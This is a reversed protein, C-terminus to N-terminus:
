MGNSSFAQSYLLFEEVSNVREPAASLTCLDSIVHQFRKPSPIKLPHIIERSQIKTPLVLKDIRIIQVNKAM